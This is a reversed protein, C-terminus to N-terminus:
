GFEMSVSLSFNLPPVNKVIIIQLSLFDYRNFPYDGILPQKKIRLLAM